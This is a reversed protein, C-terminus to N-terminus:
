GTVANPVSAPRTSRSMPRRRSAAQGPTVGDFSAGGVGASVAAAVAAAGALAVSTNHTVLSAEQVADVLTRPNDPAVKIGVPTIRMAAGNTDGSVGAEEPATGALVADVARRTSPGLLDLSGRAAM